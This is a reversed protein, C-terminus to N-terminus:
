LLLVIVEAPITTLLTQPPEPHIISAALLTAAAICDRLSLTPEKM